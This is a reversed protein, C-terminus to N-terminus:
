SSSCFLSRRGIEELRVGGRSINASASGPLIVQDTNRCKRGVCKRRRMHDALLDPPVKGLILSARTQMFKTRGVLGIGTLVKSWIGFSM